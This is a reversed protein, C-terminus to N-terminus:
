KAPERKLLELRHGTGAESAFRSPRARSPQTEDKDPIVYCFRLTDGDLEYIDRTSKGKFWGSTGTFQAQKPSETPDILFTGAVITKGDTQGEWKGDEHLILPKTVSSDSVKKGNEM